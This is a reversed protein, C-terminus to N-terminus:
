GRRPCPRHVEGVAPRVPGLADAMRRNREAAAPSPSTAEEQEELRELTDMPDEGPVPRLMYLDYSVSRFTSGDTARSGAAVPGDLRM